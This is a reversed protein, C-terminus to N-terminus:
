VRVGFDPITAEVRSSEGAAVNEQVIRDVDDILPLIKHDFLVRNIFGLDSRYMSQQTFKSWSDLIPSIARADTDARLEAVVMTHLRRALFTAAEEEALRNRDAPASDQIDRRFSELMRPQLPLRYTTIIHMVKDAYSMAKRVPM